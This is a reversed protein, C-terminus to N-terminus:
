PSKVVVVPLPSRRMVREACSGLLVHELGSTGRTGMAILDSELNRACRLVLEDPHGPEIVVEDLMAGFEERLRAVRTQVDADDGHGARPLAHVVSIRAGGHDALAGAWDLASRADASFDTAVLIRRLARPECADARVSLVPCVALRAVRETVSGLLAHSLGSRGHTGMAILEARGAAAVSCAASAAHEHSVSCDVRLGNARLTQAREELDSAAREQVALYSDAPVPASTDSGWFISDFVSTLLELEAGLVRALAAAHRLALEAAPSFDTPVLIRRVLPVGSM